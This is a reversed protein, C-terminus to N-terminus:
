LEGEEYLKHLVKIEQITIHRLNSPLCYRILYLFCDTKRRDEKTIPCQRCTGCMCSKNALKIATKIATYFTENCNYLKGRYWLKIIFNYIVKIIFAIAWGSLWAIIGIILILTTPNM